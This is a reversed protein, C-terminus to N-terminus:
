APQLPISNTLAKEELTHNTPFACHKWSWLWSSFHPLLTRISPLTSESHQVFPSLSLLAWWYPLNCLGGHEKNHWLCTQPLGCMTFVPDCNTLLVSKGQKCFKIWSIVNFYDNLLYFIFPSSNLHLNDLFFTM